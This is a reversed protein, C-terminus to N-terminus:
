HIGDCVTILNESNSPKNSPIFIQFQAKSESYIGTCKVHAYMTYRMPISPHTHHKAMNIEQRCDVNEVSM